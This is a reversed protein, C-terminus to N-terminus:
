PSAAPPSAPTRSTIWFRTASNSRVIPRAPQVETASIPGSDSLRTSHHEVLAQDVGQVDGRAVVVVQGLAGHGVLDELSRREGGEEVALELAVDAEGLEGAVAVEAEAREVADVALHHRDVALEPAAVHLPDRVRDLGLAPRREGAQDLELRGVAELEGVRDLPLLQHGLEVAAQARGVLDVGKPDVAAECVDM